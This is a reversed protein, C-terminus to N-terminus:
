KFPAELASIWNSGELDKHLNQKEAIGLISKVPLSSDTLLMYLWM